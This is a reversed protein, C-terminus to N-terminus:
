QDSPGAGPALLGEAYGLAQLRACLAADLEPRRAAEPDAQARAWQAERARLRVFAAGAEEPRALPDTSTETPDLEVNTVRRFDAQAETHAWSRGLAEQIKWPGQRLAIKDRFAQPAFAEHVILRDAPAEAALLDLGGDRSEWPLGLLGLVTPAVDLETATDHRVGPSLAGGSRQLALPVRLMAEFLWAAHGVYNLTDCFHEGHDATFVTLTNADAARVHALLPALCRDAREVEGRYLARMLEVDEPALQDREGCTERRLEEPVVAGQPLYKGELGPGAAFPAGPEGLHIWVFWPGPTSGREAAFALARAVLEEGPVEPEGAGPQDFVDFGGEFGPGAAVRQALFAATRYGAEDLALALTRQAAALEYGDNLVGHNRPMRSTLLSALSPSTIPTVALAEEFVLAEALFADLAPTDVAEDGYAGLQDARLADVTILLVNPRVERAAAEACGSLLLTAGLLARASPRVIAM